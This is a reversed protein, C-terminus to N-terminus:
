NEIGDSIQSPYIEASYDSTCVLSRFRSFIVSVKGNRLRTVKPEPPKWLKILPPLRLGKATM